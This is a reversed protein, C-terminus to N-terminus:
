TSRVTLYFYETETHVGDVIIRLELIFTTLLIGPDLNKAHITITGGMMDLPYMTTMGVNYLYVGGSYTPTVNTGHYSIDFNPGYAALQITVDNTTSNGNKM